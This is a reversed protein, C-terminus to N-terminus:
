YIDSSELTSIPLFFHEALMSLLIALPQFSSTYIPSEMHFRGNKQLNQVEIEGVLLSPEIYTSSLLM